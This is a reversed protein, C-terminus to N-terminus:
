QEGRAAPLRYGSPASSTVRVPDAEAQNFFSKGPRENDSARSRIYKVRIQVRSQEPNNGAPAHLNIIFIGKGELVSRMDRLRVAVALQRVRANIRAPQLLSVSCLLVGAGSM